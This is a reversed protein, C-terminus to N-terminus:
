HNMQRARGGARVSRLTVSPAGRSVGGSTFQVGAESPYVRPAQEPAAIRGFTRWAAAAPLRRHYATYLKLVAATIRCIIIIRRRYYPLYLKYYPLITCHPLATGM